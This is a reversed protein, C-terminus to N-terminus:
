IYSVRGSINGTPKKLLEIDQVLFSSSGTSVIVSSNTYYTIDYDATLNYEGSTVSFSYFGTENTITSRSTNTSVKVGSIGTKNVSDMVTGNIYVAPLISSETQTNKIHLVWDNTDPATFKRSSSGLVTTKGQYTGARPNYWEVSLTGKAPSLNVTTSGGSPLYIVYENGVDAIASANGALVIEKNPSLKWYKTTSWFNFLYTMYDTGKSRAYQIGQFPQARSNYTGTNGFALGSAGYTMVYWAGKRVTDADVHHTYIAGAGSDEYYFEENMVPKNYSRDSTILSWTRTQQLIWDLWAENKLENNSDLTHMSQIDGYPDYKEIWNGIQNALAIYGPPTNGQEEFEARGEWAIDYASYRAVLYKIYREMKGNGWGFFTTLLSGDGGVVLHMMIGKSNAYNIRKDVEQFYKPNLNDPDWPEFARGGENYHSSDNAASYFPVMYSRIFNFKQNSRNDVYQKYTLYNLSGSVNSMANWNTDGMLLVNGGNSRKFAFRNIPDRIIFGKKNSTEVIFSGKNGNLQIDNSYTVYNWTGVETPVIRIKWNDGGDWFGYIQIKTSNPGTFSANLWVDIYPNQYTNTTTLNINYIDFKGVNGAQVIATASILIYLTIILIWLFRGKMDM